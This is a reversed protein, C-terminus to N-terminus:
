RSTGTTVYPIQLQRASSNPGASRRRAPLGGEPGITVLVTVSVNSPATEDFKDYAFEPLTAFPQFIPLQNGVYAQPVCAASNETSSTVQPSAILPSAAFALFWLLRRKFM